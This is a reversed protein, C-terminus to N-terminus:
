VEDEEDDDEDDDKQQQEEAEKEKMQSLSRSIAWEAADSAGADTAGKKKEEAIKTWLEAQALADEEEKSVNSPPKSDDQRFQAAAAVVGTWDGQDILEDLETARNATIGELSRRSRPTGSSAQSTTADGGTSATNESADSMMAAAQGVAEWDGAEIAMELASRHQAASGETGSGTLGSGSSSGESMPSSRDDDTAGDASVAALGAVMSVAAVPAIGSSGTGLSTAAAPFLSQTTTAAGPVVGRQVSRRAETKAAKHGATRAKQAVAREQMTRLTEVLEEERGKFQNMMEDVNDIEEPVVRRVLAEVEGRVEARKAAKSPSESVGSESPSNGTGLTGTGTGSDSGASGASSNTASKDSRGGVSAEFKAAALVVGEWDGADVLHDLESARAADISDGDRSSSRSTGHSRTSQSQSDSAAALLAATAGVAAWDGSEILNDLQDRSADQVIPVEDAEESCIFIIPL